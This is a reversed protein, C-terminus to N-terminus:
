GGVREYGGGRWGMGGVCDDGVRVCWSEVELGEELRELLFLFLDRLVVPVLSLSSSCLGPSSPAAYLQASPARVTAKSNSLRILLGELTVEITRARM